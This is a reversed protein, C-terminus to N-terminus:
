WNSVIRRSVEEIQSNMYESAETTMLSRMSHATTRHGAGNLIRAAIISSYSSDWQNSQGDCFWMHIGANRRELRDKKFEEISMRGYTYEPDLNNKEELMRTADAAVASAIMIPTILKEIEDKEIYEM